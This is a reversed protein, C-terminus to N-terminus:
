SWLEEQVLSEDDGSSRLSFEVRMLVVGKAQGESKDASRLEVKM